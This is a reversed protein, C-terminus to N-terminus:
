LLKQYWRVLFPQVLALTISLLALPEVSLSFLEVREPVSVELFTVLMLLSLYIGGAIGVLEALARSIPSSIPQEPIKGKDERLVHVKERVSFFFLLFFLIFLLLKSM